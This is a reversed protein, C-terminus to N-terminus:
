EFHGIIIVHQNVPNYYNLKNKNSGKYTFDNIVTFLNVNLFINMHSPTYSSMKTM